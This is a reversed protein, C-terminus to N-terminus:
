VAYYFYIALITTTPSKRTLQTSLYLLILSMLIMIGNCCLYIVQETTM